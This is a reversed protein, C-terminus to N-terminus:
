ETRHGALVRSVTPTLAVAAAVRMPVFVRAGTALAAAAAALTAKDVDSSLDLWVGTNARYGWAALPFAVAWFALEVLVYALTGALGADKIKRMMEQRGSRGEGGSGSGAMAGSPAGETGDTDGGGSEPLARLRVQSSSALGTSHNEVSRRGSGCATRWPRAGEAGGGPTSHVTPPARRLRCGLGTGTCGVLGNVSAATMGM